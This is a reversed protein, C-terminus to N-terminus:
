RGVVGGVDRRFRAILYPPTSADQGANLVPGRHLQNIVVYCWGDPGFSFADPWALTEDNQFLQVYSGHRNIMGIAHNGIDSIYVEGANTVTSGDSIPKNGFREVREGLLAEAMRANTLDATGIRYMATGHMPGYYLWRNEPDLAIPNVGVRPRVTRGDPQRIRVAQQHIVLDIPEPTVSPHGELVRRAAGTPIHVVILAADDGGAPDAIYIHERDRDVALDNLFSNPRSIPEPLEIVKFLEDRDVDWGVLKPTVDSRMGNDLMWLIGETDFQVGLVSDLRRSAPGSRRNWAANPFPVLRRGDIIEAVALDPNYHQHMSVILRGNRTVTINGPARELRAVIPMRDPQDQQDVTTPPTGTSACGGVVAIAALTFHLVVSRLCKM